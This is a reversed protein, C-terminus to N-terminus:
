CSLVSLSSFYDNGHSRVISVLLSLGLAGECAAMVLFFMVFYVELSVVSLSVSLGGFVGLMIFELGLLVNLLHKYKFIYVSLGSMVMMFFVFGSLSLSSM